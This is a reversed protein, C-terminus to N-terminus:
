HAGPAKLTKLFEIISGQDYSSLTNFAQESTLAEGAHALISERITTYKGHHFKNPKSGVTWLRKTLFYQNGAFFATSGAAQNQNLSEGNPDGPGTCINHLKFDTYLPVMIVGNKPKLRPSPLVNSTLDMTYDPAQGTQLNGAPNYPNPEVYKWNYLPLSPIHCAACGISSFLAQGNTVAAQITANKPIVQTPVAMAAQFLTVATIDARTLENTIGDGDPDAGLGFREESQMGHHHNYANNTFQRLSVVNSAQSWPQLILTPATTGTTAIAQPPLGTVASTNWTGDSNHTLTGFSIGKSTLTCSQGTACAAAETQLDATIERALMEIYGSGFMGPTARPNSIVDGGAGSTQGLIAFQGSEDVAGRTAMMDTHDFTAHDFRQGLVFVNGVADGDGGPIPSNHCAACSNSDPGSIRNMNRPFVLPSTPDSLAAGTGKTLPRGFGDQITFNATFVTQGYSLLYSLPETFEQGDQLHQPIAQESGIVQAFAEPAAFVYAALLASFCVCSCRARLLM